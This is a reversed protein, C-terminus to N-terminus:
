GTIWIYALINSAYLLTVVFTKVSDKINQTTGFSLRICKLLQKRKKILWM